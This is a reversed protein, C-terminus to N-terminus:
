TGQSIRSFMWLEGALKPPHHLAPPRARTILELRPSPQAAACLFVNPNPSDGGYRHFYHEVIRVHHFGMEDAQSVIRLCEDFYIDAPREEPRVDPFFNIGAEM